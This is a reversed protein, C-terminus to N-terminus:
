PQVYHNFNTFRFKILPALDILDSLLPYEHTNDNWISPLPNQSTITLVHVLNKMAPKSFMDSEESYARLQRLFHFRQIQYLLAELLFNQCDFEWPSELWKNVNLFLKDCSFSWFIAFYLYKYVVPIFKQPLYVHFCWLYVVFSDHFYASGYDFYGFIDSLFNQCFENM